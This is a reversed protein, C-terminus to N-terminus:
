FAAGPKLKSCSHSSCHVPIVTVVPMGGAAPTSLAHSEALM